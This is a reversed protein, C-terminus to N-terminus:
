KLSSKFVSFTDLITHVFYYYIYNLNKIDYEM